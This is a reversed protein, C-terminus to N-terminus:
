GMMQIHQFLKHILDAHAKDVEEQSVTKERDRYVFRLTLNHKGLGLKEHEYIDLLYCEELLSSSSEYAKKIIADFAVNKACTCTWDRESAPYLVLPKMKRAEQPLLRWLELIDCEAFFLPKDIGLSRLFAPHLRGIMGVHVHDLYIKAQQGPHM